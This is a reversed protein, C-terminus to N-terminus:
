GLLGFMPDIFQHARQVDVLEARSLYMIREIALEYRALKTFVDSKGALQRFATGPTPNSAKLRECEGAFMEVEITGFRRLRWAAEAVRSALLEEYAGRPALQQMLAGTFSDFELRDETALVPTKALLGHKIANQSARAKGTESRPGGSRPSPNSQTSPNPQQMEEMRHCQCLARIRFVFNTQSSIPARQISEL